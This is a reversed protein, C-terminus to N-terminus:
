SKVMPWASVQPTNPANSRVTKSGAKPYHTIATPVATMSPTFGEETRFVAIPEDGTIEHGLYVGEELPFDEPTGIDIATM